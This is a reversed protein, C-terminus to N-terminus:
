TPCCNFTFTWRGSRLHAIVNTGAPPVASGFNYAYIIRTDDATFTATDGEGEDGDVEVPNCAYYVNATTPYASEAFTQLLVSLGGEGNSDGFRDLARALAANREREIRPDTSL